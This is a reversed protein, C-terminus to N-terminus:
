GNTKSSLQGCSKLAITLDDEHDSELLILGWGQYALADQPDLAVAIQYKDMAAKASINVPPDRGLNPSARM